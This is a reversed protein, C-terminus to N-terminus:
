EKARETSEYSADRRGRNLFADLDSKLFSARGKTPRSYAIHGRNMYQYLAQKSVGLYEAAEKTNLCASM